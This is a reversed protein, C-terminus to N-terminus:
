APLPDNKSAPLEIWFRSGKSPESLVGVKGNMREVGRKVIALGIGVGPYATEPHLRTFPQFIREQHEVPIGIGNDEVWLRVIGERKEAWVKVKPKRDPPTFKVANTLLNVVIQVLLAHHGVVEPLPRTVIVRADKQTLYAELLQLADDVIRELSVAGVTLEMYSLRGYDLVANILQDMKRAANIIRRCYDRGTENLRDAYDELLAQAFGELAMLPARLDHSVAYVFTEMDSTRQRVQFELANRADRLIAEAQKRETIDLLNFLLCPQGGIEIAVISTLVNRVSGDKRKLRKEWERIEGQRRLQEEKEARDPSPLWLQLKEPAQEILEDRSYGTLAVFQDNVEVFKRDEQRAIAMATLSSHFAKFFREEAEKAEIIDMTVGRLKTVKGDEVVITVRERLWLIRGDAAVMRYDVSAQELRERLLRERFAVMRERDEPHLHVLWFESETQWQSLPYGLIREAQQSVFTYRKERVDWEWIIADVSNLLEEVKGMKGAAEKVLSVSPKVIACDSPFPLSLRRFVRFNWLGDVRVSFNRMM